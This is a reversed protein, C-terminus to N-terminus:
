RNSIYHDYIENYLGENRKIFELIQPELKERIDLQKDYEGGIEDAIFDRAASFVVRKLFDDFNDFRRPSLWDYSHEIYDILANMRRKILLMENSENIRNVKEFSSENPDGLGGESFFYNHIEDYMEKNTKIYNLM